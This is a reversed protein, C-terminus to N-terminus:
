CGEGPLHPIVPFDIPKYELEDFINHYTIHIILLNQDLRLSDLFTGPWFFLYDFFLLNYSSICYQQANSFPNCVVVMRILPISGLMDM